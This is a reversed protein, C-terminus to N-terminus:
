MWHPGAFQIRHGWGCSLLVLGALGNMRNWTPSQSLRRWFIQSSESSDGLSTKVDPTGRLLELAIAGKGVYM